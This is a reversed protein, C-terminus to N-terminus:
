SVEHSVEGFKVENAAIGDAEGAAVGAVVVAGAQRVALVRRGPNGAEVEVAGSFASSSSKEQGGWGKSAATSVAEPVQAAPSRFMTGAEAKTQRGVAGPTRTPMATRPRTSTAMQADSRRRRQQRVSGVRRRGQWREFHAGVRHNRERENSAPQICHQREEFGDLKGLEWLCQLRARHRWLGRHTPQIGAGAGASGYANSASAGRAYTGTSPNYGARRKRATVTRHRSEAHTLALPPTTAPATTPSAPVM